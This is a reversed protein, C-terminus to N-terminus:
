EPKNDGCVFLKSKDINVEKPVLSTTDFGIENLYEVAQKAKRFSDCKGRLNRYAVKVENLKDRFAQVVLYEEPFEERNGSIIKAIIHLPKNYGVNYDSDNFYSHYVNIEAKSYGYSQYLEQLELKALNFNAIQNFINTLRDNIYVLKMLEKEHQEIVSSKARSECKQIWVNVDCKTVM